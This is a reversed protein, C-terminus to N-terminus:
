LLRFRDGVVIATAEDFVQVDNFTGRSVAGGERTQVDDTTSVILGYELGDYQEQLTEAVDDTVTPEQGETGSFVDVDEFREAVYPEGATTDAVVVHLDDSEAERRGRIWQEWIEGRHLVQEVTIGTVGLGIGTGAAALAQRRSVM